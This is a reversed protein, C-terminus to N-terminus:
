MNRMKLYRRIEPVSRIAVAAGGAAVAAAVITAVMGVTKM